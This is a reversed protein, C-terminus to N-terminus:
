RGQRVNSLGGTLHSVVFAVRVVNAWKQHNGAQLRSVGYLLLATSGGCWAYASARNNMFPKAGPFQEHFNPASRLALTSEVDFVVAGAVAFDLKEAHLSTTLFMLSLAALIKM